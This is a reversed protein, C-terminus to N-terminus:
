SEPTGYEEQASVLSSAFTDVDRDAAFANAADNLAQQFQPTAASGHACSPLLTDSAFSKMSWQHYDSFGETPVDTRAPISGKLPNFAAQAEVTGIAKLWATAGDANPAGKPRTFCDVVLLFMGATGPTSVWGIKDQAEKKVVEGYAWDGMANFAAKGEVVLATAGDWTLAAHDSNQYDLMRGLATIADKVTQDDWAMEGAFLKKYNEGGVVSALTNEFNQPVVFGDKDGISIADVGSAKVADAAAWFEDWSMTEGVTVGAAAVVEKNYWFGNGRHVGVPVAYQEGNVTVQDVLGAPVAALWGESTYLDTVPDCYGPIVYRDFLERGVHVQWSDPPNNGALRTQLVGLAAGGAGGAIAANVLKADPNAASFAKILEELAAAEGGSTWWSFIEVDGTAQAVAEQFRVLAGVVSAGLGIVAARKFIERRTTRGSTVDAILADTATSGTKFM